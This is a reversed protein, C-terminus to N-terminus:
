SGPHAVREKFYMVARLDELIKQLEQRERRSLPVRPEIPVAKGSLLADQRACFYNMYTREPINTIATDIRQRETASLPALPVPLHALVEVGYQRAYEFIANCLPWFYPPLRPDKFLAQLKRRSESSIMAMPEHPLVRGKAKAEIIQEEFRVQIIMEPSVLFSLLLLSEEDTLPPFSALLRSLGEPPATSPPMPVMFVMSEPSLDTEDSGDLRYDPDSMLKRALDNIQAGIADEDFEDSSAFPAITSTPAPADATEALTAPNAQETPVTARDMNAPTEPADAAAPPIDCVSETRTTSAPKAQEPSVTARDTNAPTEPIDAVAHPPIECATDPRSTSAQGGLQTPGVFYHLGPVPEGPRLRIRLGVADIWVIRYGCGDYLRLDDPYEFPTLTYWAATRASSRKPSLKPADGAHRAPLVLRYGVALKPAQAIIQERMDVRKTDMFRSSVPLGHQRISEVIRETAISLLQAWKAADQNRSRSQRQTAVTQTAATRGAAQQPTDRQQKKRQRSLASRCKPSCTKATSKRGMLPTENCIPCLM